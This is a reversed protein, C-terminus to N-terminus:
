VLGGGSVTGGEVPNAELTVNYFIEEFKATVNMNDEVTFTFTESDSLLDEGIFWGVFKFHKDPTAVLTAEDGYLYSGGGSVSGNGSLGIEIIFTKKQFNAVLHVDKTVEFTFQPTTSVVNGNETWNVFEWGTNPTASVETIKEM